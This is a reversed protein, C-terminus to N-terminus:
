RRRGRRSRKAAAPVQARAPLAPLAAMRAFIMPLLFLNFHVVVNQAAKLLALTMVAPPHYPQVLGGERLLKVGADTAADHGAIM